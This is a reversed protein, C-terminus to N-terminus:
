GGGTRDGETRVKRRSRKAGPSADASAAADAGEITVGLEALERAVEELRAADVRLFGRALREVGLARFRPSAAIAHELAEDGIRLFTHEEKRATTTTGSLWHALRARFLPPVLKVSTRLWSDIQAAGIGAARAALVRERTIRYGDSTREAIRALRVMVIPHLGAGTARGQEDLDALVPRPQAHAPHAALHAALEDRTVMRAGEDDVIWTGPGHLRVAERGACWEAIAVAVVKPIETRSAGALFGVIREASMGAGGGLSAAGRISAADLRYRSVREGPSVLTGIQALTARTALDADDLHLLVSFDGQVVLPRQEATASAAATAVPAVEPAGFVERGAQTLRFAWRTDGAGREGAGAVVGREVLGFHVLTVLVMNGLLRGQEALWFARDREDGRPLADRGAAGRFSLELRPRPGYCGYARRAFPHLELLFVELEIWTPPHVALRGLAWALLERLSRMAEFGYRVTVDSRDNEPVAGLGDQWHRAEIWARTLAFAIEFPTRALLTTLRDVHLAVVPGGDEVVFAGRLLQWALEVRGPVALESADDVFAPLAKEIRKRTPVSLAGGKLLDLKPLSECARAVSLTELAITDSSRSAVQEVPETVPRLPWPVPKAPALAAVVGPPCERDVTDRLNWSENSRVPRLLGREYLGHTPSWRNWENLGEDKSLGRAAMEAAFLPGSIRGGYRAVIEILARDSPTLAEVVARVARADALVAAVAEIADDRRTPARKSTLWRRAMTTAENASLHQLSARPDEPERALLTRRAGNM